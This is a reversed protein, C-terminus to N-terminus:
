KKVWLLIQLINDAILRQEKPTAMDQTDRLKETLEILCNIDEETKM